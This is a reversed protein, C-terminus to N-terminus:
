APVSTKAAVLEESVTWLRRAVAEDQSAASSAVPRCRDFYKGSVTEVDPSSALYISTEAGEAPTLFFPRAVSQVFSYAAAVLPGGNNKAFGTAVVGRHLANATVGTGHLRRALEYAHLVNALKSQGYAVWGWYIPGGNLERFNIRAGRHAMSSVNIVRAPASATLLGTLLNTLHFHALHNVGFTMELGDRTRERFLNFAGANNILVHLARHRARVEEALRTIDELSALDCLLLEVRDSGARRRVEAAAADGRERSRATMLVTAGMAALGVATEKGIGDGTAGTILCTRGDMSADM